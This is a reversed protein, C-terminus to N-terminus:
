HTKQGDIIAIAERITVCVMEYRKVEEKIGNIIKSHISNEACGIEEITNEM